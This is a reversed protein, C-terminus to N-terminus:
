AVAPLLIRDKEIDLKQSAQTSDHIQIIQRAFRYYDRNEFDGKPFVLGRYYLDDLEKRVEDEPVGTKEAVEAISGPLAEALKAQGPTMLTELISRLRTSGAFGLRETLVDYSDRATM